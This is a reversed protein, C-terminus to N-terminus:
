VHFHIHCVLLYLSSYDVHYIMIKKMRFTNYYDIHQLCVVCCASILSISEIGNGPAINRNTVSTLMVDRETNKNISSAQQQTSSNSGGMSLCGCLIQDGQRYSVNGHCGYCLLTLSLFNGRTSFSCRSKASATGDDTPLTTSSNHTQHNPHPYVLM